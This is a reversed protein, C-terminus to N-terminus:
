KHYYSKIAESSAIVEVVRGVQKSIILISRTCTDAHVLWGTHIIMSSYVCVCVCTRSTCALYSIIIHICARNNHFNLLEQSHDIEQYLMGLKWSDKDLAALERQLVPLLDAAVVM